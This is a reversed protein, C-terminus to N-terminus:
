CHSVPAIFEFVPEHVSAQLFAFHPSPSTCIPTSSPSWPMCFAFVPAHVSAQLFAFHPSPNTCIPEASTHSSPLMVCPSPQLLSQLTDPLTTNVFGNLKAPALSSTQLATVVSAAPLM